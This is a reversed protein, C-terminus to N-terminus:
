IVATFSDIKKDNRYGEEKLAFRAIYMFAIHVSSSM